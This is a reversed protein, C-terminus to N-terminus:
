EVVDELSYIPRSVTNRYKNHLYACIGFWEKGGDEFLPNENRACSLLCRECVGVFRCRTDGTIGMFSTGPIRIVVVSGEPLERMARIDKDVLVNIERM